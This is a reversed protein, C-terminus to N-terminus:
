RADRPPWAGTERLSPSPEGDLLRLALAARRRVAATVTVRWLREAGEFSALEAGDFVLEVRGTLQVVDGRTWDVFVLSARPNVTLNGLTNFFQNGSFDPVTLTDDDVRVFGARGGRHSADVARGSPGGREAYSAVFFTDSRAILARADDDLAALSEVAGEYRARPAHALAFGRRHIYQPCNGFSQEVRAAFGEATVETVRGNMRNRRRSHPEIGLVGVAAGESIADRAPDGDTPRAAFALTRPDPSRVFGAPGELVTAWPDGRGDVAGVVAFPLQAFFARHQEPMFDRVIRPGVEEMREAMGVTAQMAREGEHWTSPAPADPATRPPKM